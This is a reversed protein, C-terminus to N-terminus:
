FKDFLGLEIALNNDGVMEWIENDRYPLSGIRLLEMKNHKTAIEKALDSIYVGQGSSLNLLKNKCKPTQAALTILRILEDVSLYDRKQEGKTMEFPINRKLSDELQSVFFSQPMKPGYFNFIRFITYPKKNVSSYTTILNEAMFKTLSYPSAPFPVMSEKFPSKNMTGYVEGTSSFFFGSYDVSQLSELLNLTGEVNVQYLKKYLSFDRDRQLLAGFHFIINPQSKNVAVQVSDRDSLNCHLKVVSDQQFAIQEAINNFRIDLLYIMAGSTALVEALKSGLYGGGGTILIRKNSFYKLNPEM